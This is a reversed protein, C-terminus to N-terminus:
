LVRWSKIPFKQKAQAKDIMGQIQSENKVAALMYAFDSCEIIFSIFGKAANDAKWKALKKEKKKAEAANIYEDVIRDIVSDITQVHDWDDMGECKMREPPLTSVYAEVAERIARDNFDVDTQGGKGSNQTFGAKKGNVFLNAEFCNTEESMSHHVKIGKLEIKM